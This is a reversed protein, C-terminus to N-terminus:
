RRIGLPSDAKVSSVLADWSLEGATELARLGLRRLKLPDLPLTPCRFIDVVNDMHVLWPPSYEDLNTLIVAGHDMASGISTNNARAGGPFFAAFFTATRLYNSVAVDSLNGLFYLEEPFIEHLEEFVAQADKISSTEHNAASAYVVYRRGTADLLERLRRFMEVQIKHAMGFFFVSIEAPRFVRTDVILGPAWLTKVDPVLERVREEVEHNGAYVVAANLVMAKEEPLGAWDHLFVAYREHRAIAAPLANREDASLEAPKLSLLPMEVSGAREDFLHLVPVGLHEGLLENFRAVGSRFPNMHYGVVAGVCNQMPKERVAGSEGM